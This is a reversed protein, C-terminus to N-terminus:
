SPYYLKHLAETELKLNMLEVQIRDTIAKRAVEACVNSSRLDKLLNSLNIPQGFNFTLNKGTKLIYPPDNPLVQDMGIHWIPVVIPTIPAEYILRGVGWKLRIFEKTLNVRGEPFIHVWEGKCLRELCFDIAEQYVGKGRIVPICRGLMFFYSHLKNTFCIDHAALAWRMRPATLLQRWKLCGWIGPDDFCSHHNSVTILPVHQPRDELIKNFCKRNHTKAKNFWGVLIKSFLGVASVTINSAINWFFMGCIPNRLTPFIWGVNYVNM